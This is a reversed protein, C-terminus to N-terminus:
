PQQAEEPMSEQGEGALGDSPRAGNQETCDSM